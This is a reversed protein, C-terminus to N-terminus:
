DGRTSWSAPDLPVVGDISGDGGEDLLGVFEYPLLSATLRIRRAGDDRRDVIANTWRRRLCPHDAAAAAVTFSGDWADIRVVDSTAELQGWVHDGAADDEAIWLLAGLDDAHGLHVVARGLLPPVGLDPLAREGVWAIVIAPPEGFVLRELGVGGRLDVFPVLVVGARTVCCGTPWGALSDEREAIGTTGSFSYDRIVRRWTSRLVGGCELAFARMEVGTGGLDFTRHPADLRIEVQPRFRRGVREDEPAPGALAVLASAVLGTFGDM